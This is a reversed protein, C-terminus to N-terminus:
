LRTLSFGDECIHVTFGFLCFIVCMTKLLLVSLPCGLSNEEICLHQRKSKFRHACIHACRIYVNKREWGHLAVYQVFVEMDAM